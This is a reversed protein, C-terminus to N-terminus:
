KKKEPIQLIEDIIKGVEKRERWWRRLYLCGVPSGVVVSSWYAFEAAKIKLETTLLTSLSAIGLSVLFTGLALDDSGSKSAMRIQELKDKSIEYTHFTDRHQIIESDNTDIQNPKVTQQPTTM